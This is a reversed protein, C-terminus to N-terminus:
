RRYREIWRDFEAVLDSRDFAREKERLRERVYDVDLQRALAGVVNRADEVDKERESGLKFAVLDEPSLVPVEVGLYSFRRSRDLARTEAPTGALVVDVTIGTEVHVLPLVHHRRAFAEPHATRSRLAHRDLLSLVSGLDNPECEITVDIDLTQRPVAYLALAQAGFLFWRVRAEELWAAVSGLTRALPATM